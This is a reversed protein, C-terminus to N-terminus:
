MTSLSEKLGLSSIPQNNVKRMFMYPRVLIFKWAKLSKQTDAVLMSRRQTQQIELDKHTRLGGSYVQEYIGGQFAVRGQFIRLLYM